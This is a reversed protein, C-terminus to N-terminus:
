LGFDVIWLGFYSSKRPIAWRWLILIDVVAYRIHLSRHVCFTKITTLATCQESECCVVISGTEDNVARGSGADWDVDDWM